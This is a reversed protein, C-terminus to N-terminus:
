KLWNEFIKKFKKDFLYKEFIYKFQEKYIKCFTTKPIIAYTTNQEVYNCVPCIGCYPKFPCYICTTTDNISSSIISCSKESNIIKEYNDNKVNGLKFLDENLMRGEDCSFIEGNYNYALQGIVAGCPNRMELYNPDFDSLIKQLIILTTRETIFTNKLNLEIIYDLSKKWFKIFEECSYEIKTKNKEAYGLKNLFRLHISEFGLKVYEDIIEKHYKLTERSTTLLAGIQHKYNSNNIKKIWKIIEDYNSEKSIRNKDHLFKPGDLSTCITINNKICYKLIEGTMVSLNTVITKQLNKKHIKNLKKAYENIEKIINFNLLPEGGQFEITLFDTKSQFIFDVVKKATNKDMDFEKKEKPKSSAHCYICKLNCRLTVVVIHLSTGQSLHTNRKLLKEKIKIKNNKTIIIGTKELKEFLKKKKINKTTLNEFENKNLLTFSGHNTTILFKNKIKM